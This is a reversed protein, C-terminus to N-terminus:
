VTVLAGGLGVGVGGAVVGVMGLGGVVGLVGVVVGGGTAGTGSCIVAIEVVSRVIRHHWPVPQRYGAVLRRKVSLRGVM